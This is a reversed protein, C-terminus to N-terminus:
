AGCLPQLDCRECTKLLHKPVVRSDGAAFAQGLADLEARWGAVLEDWSAAHKRAANHTDVGRVRPLLDANRALGDFRMEGTRLKAFAVASVNEGANVAYLPLQPDDPREGLWASVSAQGTKYDILAYSGNPL